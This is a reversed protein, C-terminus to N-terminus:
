SVRERCSARGIQTGQTSTVVCLDIDAVDIGSATLAAVITADDLGVDHKRRTLRERLVSARVEGDVVVAAGADHGFHLGLVTTM